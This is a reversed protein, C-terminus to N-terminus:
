SPEEKKFSYNPVCFRELCKDLLEKNDCVKYLKEFESLVKAIGEYNRELLEINTNSKVLTKSNMNKEKILETIFNRYCRAKTELRTKKEINLSCDKLEALVIKLKREYYEKLKKM